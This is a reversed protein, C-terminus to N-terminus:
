WAPCLFDEGTDVRRLHGEAPRGLMQAATELVESQDDASLEFFDPM